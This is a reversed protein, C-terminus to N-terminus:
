APAVAPKFTTPPKQPGLIARVAEVFMLAALAMLVIGAWPVPDTPMSIRGSAADVFRPLTLTALAWTSMVYM